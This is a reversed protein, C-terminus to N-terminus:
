EEVPPYQTLNGGTKAAERIYTDPIPFFKHEGDAVPTLKQTADKLLAAAIRKRAESEYVGFRIQDTRRLGELFFEHGRERLIASMFADTSSTDWTPLDSLGARTRIKNVLDVAAPSVTGDVRTMCEAKSLLVDAYRFIILDNGANSSVMNPDKQYKLPLAGRNFQNCTNVDERSCKKGNSTSIYETVVCKQARLDLAMTSSNKGFTDYFDWPMLYGGWGDSNSTWEMDSPLIEAIMHNALWSSTAICPVCLIVEKSDNSASFINAYDADLVYNGDNIIGNAEALAEAFKGRMMYYKMLLTQAIGKTMRGHEVDSAPLHDRAYTLASIMMEDYEQYTARHIPASETPNKRMEETTLPVPGFLDYMIYGMWGKLAMTEAVYLEKANFSKGGVTVSGEEPASEIREKVNDAKTLFNYHKYASYMISPIEGTEEGFWQQYYLQDWGTGWTSNCWLLDTTMDSFVQYGKNGASYISNDGWDGASFEYMLANVMLEMDSASEIADKEAIENYNERELSCSGFITAILLANFYFFITKKM